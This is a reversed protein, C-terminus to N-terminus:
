AFWAVQQGGAEHWAEVDAASAEKVFVEGQLVVRASELQYYSVLTDVLGTRVKREAVEASGAWVMRSMTGYRVVYLRQHSQPKAQKM